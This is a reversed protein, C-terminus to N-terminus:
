KYLLFPPFTIVPVFFIFIEPFITYDGRMMLTIEVKETVEFIVEALSFRKVIEHTHNILIEVKKALNGGVMQLLQQHIFPTHM